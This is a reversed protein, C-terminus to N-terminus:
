EYAKTMQTSITSWSFLSAAKKTNVSVANELSFTMAQLIESDTNKISMVGDATTMNPISAEETTVVPLGCALAELCATSTEEYATPTFVFTDAARYAFLRDQGYLPNNIIVSKELGCSKILRQLVKLYGDDRGVLLLRTNPYKKQLKPFVTLLKEIGKHPSFRGLFLFYFASADLKLKKRAALKNPLKKFEGFDIGLPIIKTQKQSLFNHLVSLEHETQGFSISIKKKLLPILPVDFLKKILMQSSNYPLTGWPSLFYKKTQGFLLVFLNLLTRVEHLHIVDFKNQQLYFQAGIPICFHFNWM